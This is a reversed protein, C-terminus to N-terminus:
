LEVQLDPFRAEIQQKVWTSQALALASGRSGIRVRTM